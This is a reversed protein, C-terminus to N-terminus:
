GHRWLQKATGIQVQHPPFWSRHLCSWPAAPAEEHVATMGRFSQWVSLSDERLKSHASGLEFDSCLTEKWVFWVEVMLKDSGM